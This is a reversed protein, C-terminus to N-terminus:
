EEWGKYILDVLLDGVQQLSQSSCAAPTDQQTLRYEYEHDYILCAPLGAQILPIHDGRISTITEKQFAPLELKIAKEFVEEVFERDYNWCMQDMLFNITQDGIGSLLILGDPSRGSHNTAYYQSGINQNTPLPSQVSCDFLVFEVSAKPPHIAFLRSLELIVSVGSANDNAGPVPQSIIDNESYSYPASDYPAAIVLSSYHSRPGFFAIINTGEVKNGDIEATFDQERVIGGCTDFWAIYADQAKKHGESGATRPGFEVQKYLFTFASTGDFDPIRRSDERSPPSSLASPFIYFLSLSFILATISGAKWTKGYYRAM